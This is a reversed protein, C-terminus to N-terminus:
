RSNNNNLTSNHRSVSTSMPPRPLYVSPDNFSNAFENYQATLASRARRVYGTGTNLYTPNISSLTQPAYLNGDEDAM